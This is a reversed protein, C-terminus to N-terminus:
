SKRDSAWLGCLRGIANFWLPRLLYFLVMLYMVMLGDSFAWMGGSANRIDLIEAISRGTAVSEYLIQLNRILVTTQDAVIWALVLFCLELPVRQYFKLKGVSQRL